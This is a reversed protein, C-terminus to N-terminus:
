YFMKRVLERTEEDRATVFVRGAQSPLTEMRVSETPLNRAFYALAMLQDITLTGKIHDNVSDIVRPLKLFNDPSVMKGKLAALFQQQRAIREQDTDSPGHNAHRYRVFGMAQYGDLKQLGPKLHIHLGGWNDDYDLQKDVMVNIGGLDDIAKVFGEYDVVVYEDPKVALFDEVTACALEPGGFAHAANIKHRGRYGPISVSTDRPISLLNITGQKFNVHALIMMDTRGNTKVVQGSRDRDVDRGLLLLNMEDRGPFARDPALGRHCIVHVTERVTSSSFYFVGLSLGLILALITVTGFLFRRFWKNRRRKAPRRVDYGNGNHKM